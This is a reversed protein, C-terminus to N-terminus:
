AKRASILFVPYDRSNDPSGKRIVTATTDRIESFGAEALMGRVLTREFGNHHVGTPDDHFTGDEKDLDALCITGGPLLLEHFLRLLPGIEAVHHLTMSSAILHYEGAPRDNKELDCFLTRVNALGLERVKRELVDLMGRSSDVGTISRLHPQLLLTLLGTGCGFDIADMEGSPRAAEIIAAAVRRALEVRRPEEDWTAAKLDFDSKETM